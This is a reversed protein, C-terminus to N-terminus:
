RFLWQEEMLMAPGDGFLAIFNTEGFPATANGPIREIFITDQSRPRSFNMKKEWVTQGTRQIWVSFEQWRPQTSGDPMTAPEGFKEQVTVLAFGLPTVVLKGNFIKEMEEKPIRAGQGAGCQYQASCVPLWEELFAIDITLAGAPTNLVVKSPVNGNAFTYKWGKGDTLPLLVNQLIGEMQQERFWAHHVFLGTFEKQFEWSRTESSWRFVVGGDRNSDQSYGPINVMVFIFVDGNQEVLHQPHVEILGWWEALRAEKREAIVRMDPHFIGSVLSAKLDWVGQTANQTIASQLGPVDWRTDATPSPEPVVSANPAILPTWTPAATAGDDSPTGTPATTAGGATPSPTTAMTASVAPVSSKRGNVASRASAVPSDEDYSEPSVALTTKGFCGVAFAAALCVVAFTKHAM